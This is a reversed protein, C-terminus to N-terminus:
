EPVKLALALGELEGVGVVLAEEVCVPVAVAAEVEDPVCVEEAEPVGVWENEEEGLADEEMERVCSGLVVLVPLGVTVDDRVEEGIEVAVKVGVTAMGVLELVTVDVGLGVNVAVPVGRSGEEVDEGVEVKLTHEVAETVTGGDKEALAVLVALAKGVEEGEPVEEEVILEVGLPVGEDERVEQVDALGESLARPVAAEVGLAFEVVVAMPVSVESALPVATCDSVVRGEAEDASLTVPEGEEERAPVELRWGEGDVSSEPLTKPEDDKGAVAEPAAGVGVL